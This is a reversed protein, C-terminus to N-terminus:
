RRDTVRTAVTAVSALETARAAPAPVAPAVPTRVGPFRSTEVLTQVWSALMVAPVVWSGGFQPEDAAGHTVATAGPV